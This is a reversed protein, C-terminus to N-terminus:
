IRYGTMGQPGYMPNTNLPQITINENAIGRSTLDNVVEAIDNRLQSYGQALNQASANRVISLRWKVIDSDFSRSASGVTTITRHMARSNYHFLGLIAAAIVMAAGLIFFNWDRM